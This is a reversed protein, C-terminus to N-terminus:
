RKAAPPPLFALPIRLPKEQGEFRLVLLARCAAEARRRVTLAQQPAPSAPADVEFGQGEVTAELIRFPAGDRSKLSLTATREKRDLFILRAPTPEVPWRLHWDVYLKFEPERPANTEVEVVELGRSVGPEVRDPRLTLRLETRNGTTSLEPELYPPLASTIRIQTPDGTERVFAFVQQPSEHPAVDGFSKRASDVTLDPRVTMAVPLLYEGQRPDDTGLKANRPQWGVWGTPDVTLVLSASEGPPIPALLAPGAVTVGPAADLLRLSIPAKSTNHFTYAQTKRERPGVSGLDVRGAPTIALRAPDKPAAAEPRFPAQALGSPAAILGLCCCLVFPKM